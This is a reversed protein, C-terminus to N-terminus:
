LPDSHMNLMRSALTAPLHSCSCKEKRRLRPNKCTSPRWGSCSGDCNRAHSARSVRRLCRFRRVRGLGNRAAPLALDAAHADRIGGNMGVKFM